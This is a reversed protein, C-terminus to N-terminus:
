SRLLVNTLNLKIQAEANPPKGLCLVKYNEILLGGFIPESIMSGWVPRPNSVRKLILAKYKESGFPNRWYESKIYM